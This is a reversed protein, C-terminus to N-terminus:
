PKRTCGLIRRYLVQVAVQGTGEMRVRLTTEEGHEELNFPERHSQLGVRYKEQRLSTVGPLYLPHRHLEVGGVQYKTVAPWVRQEM